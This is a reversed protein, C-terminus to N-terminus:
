KVLPAYLMKNSPGSSLRSGNSSNTPPGTRHVCCSVDSVLFLTAICSLYRVLREPDDLISSEGQNGEVLQGDGDGVSEDGSGDQQQQQQAADGKRKKKKKQKKKKKKDSPPNDNVQGTADMGARDERTPVPHGNLDEYMVEAVNMQDQLFDPVKFNTRFDDFVQKAEELSGRLYPDIGSSAELHSMIWKATETAKAHFRALNKRVEAKTPEDLMQGNPGSIEPAPDNPDLTGYKQILERMRDGKSLDDDELADGGIGLLIPDIKGGTWGGPMPPPQHAGLVDEITTGPLALQVDPPSPDVEVHLITNRENDSLESWRKNLASEPWGKRLLRARSKDDECIPGDTARALVTRRIYERETDTLESWKKKLLEEPWGDYMFAVKMKEFFLEKQLRAESSQRNATERCEPGCVHDNPPPPPPSSLSGDSLGLDREKQKGKGFVRSFFERAEEREDERELAGARPDSTRIEDDEDDEDDEDEDGLEPEHSIQSGDEDVEEDEEEEDDYEFSEESGYFSYGEEGEEGMEEPLFDEDSFIIEDQEEDEEEDEAHVDGPRALHRGCDCVGM